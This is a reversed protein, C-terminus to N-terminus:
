IGLAVQVACYVDFHDVEALPDTFEFGAEFVMLRVDGVELVVTLDGRPLAEEPGLVEDM